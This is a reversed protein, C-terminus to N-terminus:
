PRSHRPGAVLSLSAAGRRLLFAAKVLYPRDEAFLPEVCLAHLGPELRLWSEQGQGVYEGECWDGTYRTFRLKGEAVQLEVDAGGATEVCAISTQTEKPQSSREFFFRGSALDVRPTGVGPPDCVGKAGSLPRLRRTELFADFEASTAEV